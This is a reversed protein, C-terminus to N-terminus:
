HIFHLVKIINKTDYGKQLLWYIAVETLVCVFRYGHRCCCHGHHVTKTNVFKSNKTFVIESQRM